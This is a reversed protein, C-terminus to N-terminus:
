NSFYMIGISRVLLFKGNYKIFGKREFKELKSNAKDRKCVSLDVLEQSSFKNQIRKYQFIGFKKIWVNPVVTLLGMLRQECSPSFISM